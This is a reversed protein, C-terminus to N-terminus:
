KLIWAYKIIYVTGLLHFKSLVYVRCALQAHLIKSPAVSFQYTNAWQAVPNWNKKRGQLTTGNIVHLNKGNECGTYMYVCFFFFSNSGKKLGLCWWRMELNGKVNWRGCSGAIHYGLTSKVPVSRWECYWVCGNSGNSHRICKMLSAWSVEGAM